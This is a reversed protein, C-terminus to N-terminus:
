ASTSYLGHIHWISRFPPSIPLTKIAQIKQFFSVAAACTMAPNCSAVGDFAFSARKRPIHLFYDRSTQASSSETYKLKSHSVGSILHAINLDHEDINVDFLRQRARPFTYWTYTRALLIIMSTYQQSSQHWFAYLLRHM